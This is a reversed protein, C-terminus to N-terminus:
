FLLIHLCLSDFEQLPLSVLLLTNKTVSVPEADEPDPLWSLAKEHDPLIKKLSAM